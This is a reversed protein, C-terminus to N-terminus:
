VLRVAGLARRMRPGFPLDRILPRMGYVCLLGVMCAGALSGGLAGYRGMNQAFGLRASAWAALLAAMSCPVIRLTWPRLIDRSMMKPSLTTVASILKIGVPVSTVLSSLATAIAVGVLGWFHGLVFALVMHVGGNLLTVLGVLLRRGLVAVPVVLAHVLSLMIVDVAFVATLRGGGYLDAGVWVSVFGMNGAIVVCAIVGAALLHMRLLAAVVEGVRAEHGEANLQALGVSTSDPLTWAMQMLTLGLRSTVVFMPVLNRHGLSAIVVSDSAFALTWGITGFWQGTGSALISRVVSWQPKPWARFLWPSRSFTRLLAAVATVLGPVVTGLALGYLGMGARTLAVVLVVNLITQVLACIGIFTYDQLGNRMAAFLRLPYGVATLAALAIVPGRLAARDDPSLHLLGPLGAWLIVALAAYVFGAAVGALTGHAVLSKTQADDKRGDAEAFLWPMVGLIGLDAFAAYGLMAGTALWMGYRDQGLARILFRTVYFAAAVGLITQGYSFAAAVLANRQRSM